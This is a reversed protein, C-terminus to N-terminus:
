TAIISTVGQTPFIGAHRNEVFELDEGVDSRVLTRWM